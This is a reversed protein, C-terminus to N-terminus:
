HFLADGSILSLVMRSSELCHPEPHGCIIGYFEVFGQKYICIEIHSLPASITQKLALIRDVGNIEFVPNNEEIRIKGTM